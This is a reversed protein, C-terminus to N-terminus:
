PTEVAKLGGTRLSHDESGSSRLGPWVGVRLPAAEKDGPELDSSIHGGSYIFFLKNHYFIHLVFNIMKVM